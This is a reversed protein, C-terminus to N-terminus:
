GSRTHHNHTTSFTQNNGISTCNPSAQFSCNINALGFTAGVGTSEFLAESRIGSDAGESLCPSVGSAPRIKTTM